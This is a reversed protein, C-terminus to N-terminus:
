VSEHYEAKIDILNQERVSFKKGPFRAVIAEDLEVLDKGQAIFSNDEDKFAYIIGNEKELRMKIRDEEPEEKSVQEELDKLMTKVIRMAYYERFYWGAAFGICILAFIVIINEM